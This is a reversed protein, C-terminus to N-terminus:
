INNLLIDEIKNFDKYSIRLLHINKSKCYEDKIKDCEITYKLKDMGGQFGLPKFHQIGDYEILINKDSLWFDFSLKKNKICDDFKKQTEYTINNKILFREIRNEGRSQNCKPCGKGDLHNSPMQKFSGHKPCIIEVPTKANIYNLKSYDYLVGHTNNAKSHFFQSYKKINTNKTKQIKCGDKDELINIQPKTLIDM